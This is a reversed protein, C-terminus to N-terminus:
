KQLRTHTSGARLAKRCTRCRDVRGLRLYELRTVFHAGCDCAVAVVLGHREAWSVTTTTLQGFREGVQVAGPITV